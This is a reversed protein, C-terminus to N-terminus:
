FPLPVFNVFSEFFTFLEDINKFVVVHAAKYIVRLLNGNQFSYFFIGYLTFLVFIDFPSEYSARQPILFLLLRVRLLPKVCPKFLFCLPGVLLIGVVRSICSPRVFYFVKLVEINVLAILDIREVFFAAISPYWEAAFKFNNTVLILMLVAVLVINPPLTRIGVCPKLL